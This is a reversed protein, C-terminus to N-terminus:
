SQALVPALGIVVKVTLQDHGFREQCLSWLPM